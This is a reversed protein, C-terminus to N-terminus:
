AVFHVQQALISSRIRRLADRNVYRVDPSDKRHVNRIVVVAEVRQGKGFEVLGREVMVQIGVDDRDSRHRGRVDSQSIVEYHTRCNKRPCQLPPYRIGDFNM